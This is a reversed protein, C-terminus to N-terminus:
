RRGHCLSVQWDALANAHEEKVLLMHRSVVKRWYEEWTFKFWVGDEKWVKRQFTYCRIIANLPRTLCVYIFLSHNGPALLCCSAQRKVLGLILLDSVRVVPTPDSFHYKRCHDVLGDQDLNHEKCYPCVFTFRNPVNKANPPQEKTVSKIGEMVYNEYKSCTAAHARLQSIFMKRSCGKCSTETTEMQRELEAEKRGPILPCRCVGCLPNKQKMCQHLCTSCFVHGCKVRIPTELVELCIPCMFRDMPDIDRAAGAGQWRQQHQEGAM